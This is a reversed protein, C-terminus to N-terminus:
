SLKRLGNGRISGVTELQARKHGIVRSVEGNQHFDVAYHESLPGLPVASSRRSRPQNTIAPSGRHHARQRLPENLVAHWVLHPHLLLVGTPLPREAQRIVQRVPSAGRAPTTRRDPPGARLRVRALRWRSTVFLM